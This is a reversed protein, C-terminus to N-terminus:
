LNKRYPPNGIVYRVKDNEICDIIKKPTRYIPRLIRISRELFNIVEAELRVESDSRDTQTESQEM